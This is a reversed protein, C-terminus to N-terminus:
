PTDPYQLETLSYKYGEKGIKLRYTITGDVIGLLRSAESISIYEVGHIICKRNSPRRELTERSLKKGKQIVSLKHKTEATHKRNSATVSLKNKTEQSVVKGRLAMSLKEKTEASTIRGRAANGINKKHEDSFKIGTRSKSIKQRTEESHSVLRFGRGGNSQNLMSKNNRADLRRLIKREWQQADIATSFIKRVQPEFSQYGHIRILEAVIKSSTFYTTWLDSPDCGKRGRYGYYYQGTPKFRVTYTFPITM